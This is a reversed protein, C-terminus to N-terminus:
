SEVFDDAVVIRKDGSSGRSGGPSAADPFHAYEWKLIKQRLRLRM